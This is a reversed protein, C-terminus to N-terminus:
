KFELIPLLSEVFPSSLIGEYVLVRDKDIQLSNKVVEFISTEHTGIQSQISQSALSIPDYIGYLERFTGM